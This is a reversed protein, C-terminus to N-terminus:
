GVGPPPRIGDGSTRRHCRRCIPESRNGPAIGHRSRIPRGCATCPVPFRLGHDPELEPEPLLITTPDGYLVYTAWLLNGHADRLARRATRVAIGISEHRLISEYVTGAFERCPEDLVPVTTGLFHRVGASLFAHAMSALGDDCSDPEASACAHAFVFRPWRSLGATAIDAAGFHGDVLQWGLQGSEDRTAHGAFHLWDSTECSNLLQERTVRHSQVSTVVGDNPRCLRQLLDAERVTGPLSFDPNSVVGFQIATDGTPGADCPAGDGEFHIRGVAFRECLYEDGVRLLEWPVDPASRDMRITLHADASNTLREQDEDSVLHATITELASRLDEADERNGGAHHRIRNLGRHAAAIDHSPISRGARQTVLLEGTSEDVCVRYEPM